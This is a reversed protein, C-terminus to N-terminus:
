RRASDYRYFLSLMVFFTSVTFSNGVSSRMLWFDVGHIQRFPYIGTCHVRQERMTAGPYM